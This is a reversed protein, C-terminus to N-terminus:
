IQRCKEPSFHSRQSVSKARKEQLRHNREFNAKGNPAIVLFCVSSIARKWKQRILAPESQTTEWYNPLSFIHLIEMRYSSFTSFRGQMRRKFVCMCSGGFFEWLFIRLVLSIFFPPILLYVNVRQLALLQVNIFHHAFVFSASPPLLQGTPWGIAHDELVQLRDALFGHLLLNQVFHIGGGGVGFGVVTQHTLSMSLASNTQVIVSM